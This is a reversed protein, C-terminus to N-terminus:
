ALLREGAGDAALREGGNLVHLSVLHGVGPVRKRRPHSHRIVGPAAPKKSMREYESVKSGKEKRLPSFARGKLGTFVGAM